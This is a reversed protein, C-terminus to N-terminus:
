SRQCFITRCNSPVCPPCRTPCPKIKYGSLGQMYHDICKTTEPNTEKRRTKMESNGRVARCPIGHLPEPNPDQEKSESSARQKLLGWTLGSRCSKYQMYWVHRPPRGVASSSPITLLLRLIRAVTATALARLGDVMMLEHDNQRNKYTKQIALLM